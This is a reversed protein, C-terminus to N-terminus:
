SAAASTAARGEFRSKARASQIARGILGDIEDMKRVFPLKELHQVLDIEGLRALEITIQLLSVQRDRRLQRKGVRDKESWSRSANEFALHQSRALVVLRTLERLTEATDVAALGAPTTRRFAQVRTVIAAAVGEDIGSVVAIEDARGAYLASLKGFGVGLLKEISLPDIGPVQELLARVIMPERRDREGDLEFARPLCARLPGYAALLAERAAPSPTAPQGPALIEALAADFRDLAEVLTTHGVPEAMKRLSRLVPRVMEFWSAQAEGWQLEMMAGRVEAMYPVALDEFTARLAAQDSDTSTGHAVTPLAGPGLAADIAIEVSGRKPEQVPEPVATPAPPAVPARAPAATAGYAMTTSLEPKKTAGNSKPPTPPPSSSPVPVGNPVAAHVGNSVAAHVGNSVPAHVGNPKAPPPAPPQRPGDDRADRADKADATPHSAREGQAATDAGPKPEAAAPKKLRSFISMGGESAVDPM